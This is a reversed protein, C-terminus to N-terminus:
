WFTRFYPFKIDKDICAADIISGKENYSTIELQESDARIIQYNPGASYIAESYAPGNLGTYYKSRKAGSVGMVHIMGDMERTRMYVHQHGCLVLDAGGDKLIPLWLERLEKSVSFVDHMGYIPHHTVVINWGATSGELTERLWNEIEREKETWAANGMAVKRAKTLFSSDLMIFRCCGRDFYYFASSDPEQAGPGNDIKQFIKKYTNNSTVGEHNGPVTMLPLEAFVGCNDLFGRWHDKRTPLNVMDGGMVAFDVDPASIPMQETLRGWNEYDEVSRDFQPDGLYAFAIAEDDEPVVFSRIKAPEDENKEGAEDREGAEFESIEYCYRKGPELGALKVEYRYMGRLVQTRKAWLPVASQLDTEDEACRLLRPGDEDGEWTIFMEGKDEGMSLITRYENRPLDQVDASVNKERDTGIMVAAILGLVISVTVGIIVFLVKRGM